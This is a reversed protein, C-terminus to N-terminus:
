SILRQDQIYRYLYLIKDEKRHNRKFEDFIRFHQTLRSMDASRLIGDHGLGDLPLISFRTLAAKVVRSREEKEKCKQKKMAEAEEKERIAEIADMATIMTGTPTVSKRKRKRGVSLPDTGRLVDMRAALLVAIEGVPGPVTEKIYSYLGTAASIRQEITPSSDSETRPREQDVAQESESTTREM